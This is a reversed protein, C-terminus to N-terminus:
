ETEEIILLLGCDPCEKINKEITYGCASCRGQEEWEPFTKIEPYKERHFEEVYGTAMSIDKKTVLLLYKCGCKGASCGPSLTIRNAVGQHFLMHSLEQVGEKGDERIAVWDENVDTLVDSKQRQKKELEEPTLLPVSCDSCELIHAYYESECEPCVKIETTSM